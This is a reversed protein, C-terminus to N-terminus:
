SPRVPRRRYTFEDIIVAYVLTQALAAEDLPQDVAAPDYKAVIARLAEERESHEELLKAWGEVVVAQYAYGDECPTPGKEFEEDMSIAICVRPNETLAASKRGPGTHLYLRGPAYAFNMPVVYPGTSEVMAVFALPAHYLLHDAGQRDEPALHSPQTNM